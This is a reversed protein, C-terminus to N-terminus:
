APIKNEFFMLRNGFPDTVTFEWAHWDNEEGGPRAYKYQKALLAEQYAKCGKVELAVAAGPCGDGHHESLHVHCAGQRIGMFIPFDDGYRHEFTVEFGLFDLYFERAKAEDFIRLQPIPRGFEWAAEPM